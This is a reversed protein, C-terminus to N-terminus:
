VQSFQEVNIVFLTARQLNNDQTDSSSEKM